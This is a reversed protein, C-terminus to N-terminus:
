VERDSYSILTKSPVVTEDFLICVRPGAGTDPIPERAGTLQGSALEAGTRPDLIRYCRPLPHDSFPVLPAGTSSYNIFLRGPVILSRASLVDQWGPRMDTTPLGALVKGLMGVATSGPFDLAERWGCGPALFYEHHGPEDPRLVWQWLSAAGYVVGMTGGACLNSWAEHGQWWGSAMDPSRTNEYTPEGNAVAKAPLNRWM